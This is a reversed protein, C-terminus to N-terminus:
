QLKVRGTYIKAIRDLTTIRKNIIHEETHTNTHTRTRSHTCVYDDTGNVGMTATHEVCDADDDCETKLSDRV